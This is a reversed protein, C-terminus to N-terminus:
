QQNGWLRLSERLHDLVQQEDANRSSMHSYYPPAVPHKGSPKVWYGIAATSVRQIADGEGIYTRRPPQISMLRYGRRALARQLGVQGPDGLDVVAVTCACKLRRPEIDDLSLGLSGRMEGSLPSFALHNYERLSEPVRNRQRLLVTDDAADCSVHTDFAVDPLNLRLLSAVFAADGTESFHARPHEIVGDRVDAFRRSVERYELCELIGGQMVYWPAFGWFRSRIYKRHITNVAKGGRIERTAARVRPVACLTHFRSTLARHEGTVYDLIRKVAFPLLGVDSMSGSRCLEGAGPGFDDRSDIVSVTGLPLADASDAAQPAHILSDVADVTGWFWIFEDYQRLKEALRDIDHSDTHYEGAYVRTLINLRAIVAHRGLQRSLSPPVERAAVPPPMFTRCTESLHQEYDHDNLSPYCFIRGELSM